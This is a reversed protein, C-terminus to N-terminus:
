PSAANPEANPSPSPDTVIGDAPALSDEVCDRRGRLRSSSTTECRDAVHSCTPVTDRAARFPTTFTSGARAPTDKPPDTFSSKGKDVDAVAGRSRPRSSVVSGLQESRRRPSAPWTPVPVKSERQRSSCSRHGEGGTMPIPRQDRPSSRGVEPLRRASDHPTIAPSRRSCLQTASSSRGDGRCRVTDASM